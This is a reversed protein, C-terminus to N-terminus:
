SRVQVQQVDEVFQKERELITSKLESDSFFFFFLIAKVIYMSEMSGEFYM